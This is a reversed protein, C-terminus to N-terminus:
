HIMLMQNSIAQGQAISIIYAGAPLRSTNVSLGNLGSTLHINQQVVIKGSYDTIRLLAQGADQATLALTVESGAPNPFLSMSQVTAGTKKTAATGLFTRELVATGTSSGEFDIFVLKYVSNDKTKLLYSRNQVISFTTGDFYKWDYGITQIDSSFQDKYADLTVTNPDVDSIRVVQVGPASLIGTVNYEQFVGPHQPDEVITIYRQYSMEYQNGLDLNKFQGSTFDFFAFNENTFQTRDMTVTQADTNDLSAFEISYNGQILSAIRFKKFSGDRLKVVIVRTGHIEHNAPNYDGWGQDFPNNPDALSNLAGINWDTDENYIKHNLVSDANILASFDNTGADYFSVAGSTVPDLGASENILVGASFGSSINFALDWSTNPIQKETGDEINVFSQLSYGAGTSIEVYDQASVTTTLILFLAFLYTIRKLM